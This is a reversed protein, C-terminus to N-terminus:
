LGAALAGHLAQSHTFGDYELQGVLGSRSFAQLRLYQKAAKVAQKM